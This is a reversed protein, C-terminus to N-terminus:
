SSEPFHFTLTLQQSSTNPNDCHLLGFLVWSPNRLIVAVVLSYACVYVCLCLARTPKGLNIYSLFFLFIHSSPFSVFHAPPRSLCRITLFAPLCAALCISLHCTCCLHLSVGAKSRQKIYIQPSLALCLVCSTDM